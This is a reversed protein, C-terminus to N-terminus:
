RYMVFFIIVTITYLYSICFFTLVTRLAKNSQLYYELATPTTDPSM